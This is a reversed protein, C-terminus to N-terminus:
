PALLTNHETLVLEVQRGREPDCALPVPYGRMGKVTAIVRALHMLEKDSLEFSYLKIIIM